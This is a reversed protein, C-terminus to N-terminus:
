WIVLHVFCLNAVLFVDAPRACQFRYSKDKGLDTVPSFPGYSGVLRQHYIRM